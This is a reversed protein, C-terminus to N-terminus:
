ATPTVAQQYAPLIGDKRMRARYWAIHKVSKTAAASNPHEAMVLAAIDKTSKGALLGNMVIQRISRPNVVNM